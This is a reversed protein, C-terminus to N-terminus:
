QRRDAPSGLWLPLKAPIPLPSMVEAVPGDIQLGNFDIFAVLNDLRYHASGYGSGMGHRGGTGRRGFATSGTIRTTWRAPWLWGVAWSIGRGWRDPLLMLGALKSRDPHGQLPSGLKRLTQLYETPFLGKRGSGRVAIARCPRRSLVFRDREEWDPRQPEIDMEWFYLATVIDAAGLSGGTHGSGAEGLMAIIQRRVKRAQEQLRQIQQQDIHKM